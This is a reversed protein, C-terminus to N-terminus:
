SPAPRAGDLPLQREFRLLDCTPVIDHIQTVPIPVGHLQRVRRLGAVTIAAAIATIVENKYRLRGSLVRVEWGCNLVLPLLSRSAAFIVEDIGYLLGTEMVGCIVEWLLAHRRDKAHIGPATCFRSAEWVTSGRPMGDRETADFLDCMLHPGTTTLLRASALLPSQREDKALVYLTDQRLDYRDIEQDAVVPIKWGARDVFVTKRQRYMEALDAAFHCRHGGDVVFIM